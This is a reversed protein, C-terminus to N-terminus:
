LIGLSSANSTLCEYAEEAKLIEFRHSILPKVDIKGEAMM